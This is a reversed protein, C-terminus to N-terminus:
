LGSLLPPLRVLTNVSLFSKCRGKSSSHGCHLLHPLLRRQGASNFDVSGTHKWFKEFPLGQVIISAEPAPSLLLIKQVGPALLFSPKLIGCNQTEFQVRGSFVGGTCICKELVGRIRWRYYSICFNDSPQPRPGRQM